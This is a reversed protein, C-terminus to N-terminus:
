HWSAQVYLKEMSNMCGTTHITHNTGNKIEDNDTM